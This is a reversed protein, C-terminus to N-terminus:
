YFYISFVVSNSFLDLLYIVGMKCNRERFSCTLLFLAGASKMETTGALQPHWEGQKEQLTQYQGKPVAFDVAVTRGLIEKMNMQEVANAADFVNAFQVFGFGRKRNRKGEKKTPVSTDVVKGFVSFTEKLISETCKFALNRVILKSKDLTHKSLSKGEKSLLVAKVVSGKITKQDLSPLAQRAQKHTKFLLYATPEVRGEVPFTTKEIDGAKRCRKYVQKNSIGEPLGTIVVTRGTNSEAQKRQSKPKRKCQDNPKEVTEVSTKMMKAPLPGLDEDGSEDKELARKVSVGQKKQLNPKNRDKSSDKEKLGHELQDKTQCSTEVDEEM